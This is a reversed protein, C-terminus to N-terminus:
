EHKAHDDDPLEPLGLERRQDNLLYAMFSGVWAPSCVPCFIGKPYLTAPGQCKSCMIQLPRLLADATLRRPKARSSRM